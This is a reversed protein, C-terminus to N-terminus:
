EPVFNLKHKPFPLEFSQKRIECLFLFVLCLSSIHHFGSSIKNICTYIDTVEGFGMM